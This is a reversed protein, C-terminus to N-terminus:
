VFLVTDKSIQCFPARKISYCLDKWYFACQTMVRFKWKIFLTDFMMTILIKSNLIQTEAHHFGPWGCCPWFLFFFSPECWLRFVAFPRVLGDSIGSVRHYCLFYKSNGTNPVSSASTSGISNARSVVTGKRATEAFFGVFCSLICKLFQKMGLFSIYIFLRMQAADGGGIM